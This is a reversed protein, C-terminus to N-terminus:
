RRRRRRIFFAAIGILAVSAAGGSGTHSDSRSGVSCGCGAGSSVYVDYGPLPPPTQCSATGGPQVVCKTMSPCTIALCPDPVCSGNGPDCAQGTSCHIDTCLNQVCQGDTPRCTQGTPCTIGQCMDPVCANDFCVQGSPCMMCAAVCQGTAPDCFQTIPDCMNMYCLDPVCTAVGSAGVVCNQGATCGLQRCDVCFGSECTQGPLCTTTACPDVCGGTMEDCMLGAPCTVTACQSPVCYNGEPFTMCSFDAPCPFEGTGCPAVCTGMYCLDVPDPCAAMNDPIGDCNDDIGNCVEPQPGVYGVCQEMGVICELHGFSCAGTDGIMEFGPDTCNDGDPPPLPPEDILGNCNDDVGNCVEPTGSSGGICMVAGGVCQLTGPTCAGGGGCADGIPAPLPGEDIM